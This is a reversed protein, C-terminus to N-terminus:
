KENAESDKEAKRLIGVSIQQLTPVEIAADQKALIESHETLCLGEVMTSNATYSLMYQSSSKILDASGHVLRYKEKLEEVFGSEIVKGDAMFVAYDTAFEMDAINHTSFIISREDDEALYERFMECLRDRMLPDLASAPEDLVLLKTNRALIAALYTRMKNGDSMKIIKKQKKVDTTDLKMRKCLENYKKRDFNDFAIEMVSAVKKSTWDYPFYNASACYGINNRVSPEDADTYEDFYKVEGGDNGSIKCMIDLLTTKGAGNSGILATSFGSPIELNIPGLSFGKYKKVIDTLKIANEM